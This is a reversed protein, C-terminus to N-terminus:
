GARQPELIAPATRLLIRLDAWFSWTEVYQRDLRMMETFPLENRGSVQWLGTIGPRVLARITDGGRVHQNEEISLPRPGVLSMEGRLVNVLQPLEDLSFRRLARGARTVRPDHLIKSLRPDGWEVAHINLHIVEESRAEADVVMARFKHIRFPRGCRGPRIQSYFAPGPSDLRIIVAIAGFVPSLLALGAASVAVDLARKAKWGLPSRSWPLRPIGRSSPRAAVYVRMRRILAM